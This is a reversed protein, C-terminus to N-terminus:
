RRRKKSLASLWPEPDLSAVGIAQYRLRHHRESRRAGAFFAVLSLSPRGGESLQLWVIGLPGAGAFIGIAVAVAHNLSRCGGM